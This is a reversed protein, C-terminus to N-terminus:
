SNSSSSSSTLILPEFDDGNGGNCMNINDCDHKTTNSTQTDIEDNGDIDDDKFM